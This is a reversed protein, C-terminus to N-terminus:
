FAYEKDKCVVSNANVCTELPIGQSKPVERCIHNVAINRRM